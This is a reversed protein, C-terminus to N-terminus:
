RQAGPGARRRFGENWVILTHQKQASQHPARSGPSVYDVGSSSDAKRAWYRREHCRVEGVEPLWRNASRVPRYKRGFARLALRHCGM